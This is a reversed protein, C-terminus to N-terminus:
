VFRRTMSMNIYTGVEPREELLAHNINWTKLLISRRGCKRIFTREVKAIM